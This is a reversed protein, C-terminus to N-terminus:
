IIKTAPVFNVNALSYILMVHADNHSVSFSLAVSVPYHKKVEKVILQGLVKAMAEFEPESKLFHYRNKEFDYRRTKNDGYVIYDIYKDFVQYDFSGEIIQKYNSSADSSNNIGRMVENAFYATMRSLNSSQKSITNAANEVARHYKYVADNYMKSYEDLKISIMDEYKCDIKERQNSKLKEILIFLVITALVGIVFGILTWFIKKGIIAFVVAVIIGVIIYEKIEHYASSYMNLEKSRERELDNIINQCQSNYYEYLREEIDSKGSIAM